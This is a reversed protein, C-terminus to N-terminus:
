LHIYVNGDDSSVPYSKLNLEAPGQLVQGTTSYESGHCPCALYEKNPRVECGQHTCVTSLATFADPGNRYVCIPRNMSGVKVLVFPHTGDGAGNHDVFATKVLTLINGDLTAAASRSGSACGQLLPVIAPAGLAFAGCTRIFSKRDM